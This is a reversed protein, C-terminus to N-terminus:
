RRSRQRRVVVPVLALLWWLIASPSSSGCGCSPGGVVNVTFRCTSTNGAADKAKVEVITRGVPFTSGPERSYELTPTSVADTATIEEFEVAAGEDSTAPETLTPTCAIEPPTRDRVDVAYTCTDAPYKPDMAFLTIETRGFPLLVEGPHSSVVPLAPDVDEARQPEPLTVRGGQPGTAEAIFDQPCTIPAFPLAWLERGQSNGENVFFLRKGAQAFSAHYATTSYDLPGLALRQALVTGQATGDTKWLMWGQRASFTIFHLQGRVLSHNTALGFFLSEERPFLEKVLTLPSVGDSRWLKRGGETLVYLMGNAEMLVEPADLSTFLEPAVVTGAETGDSRWIRPTGGADAAIFFLRDGVRILSGASVGFDPNEFITRVRTTGAETGDSKWLEVRPSFNGTIFFSQGNLEVLSTISSYGQSPIDKVFVTGAQTGDSKWLEPGEATVTTMLITKGLSAMASINRYSQGSELFRVPETGAETGNTKWLSQSDPVFFLTNEVRTFPTPATLPALSLYKLRVTGAQTGDSKWLATGAGDNAYFLLSDGLPMLARPDAGAQEPVVDKLLVTGVQTADSRWLEPGHVGDEAWFYLAGDKGVPSSPSSGRTGPFIDRLLATGGATGDTRWPEQGTGECGTTFYTWGGVTTLATAVTAQSDTCLSTVLVTGAETGDSKWLERRSSSQTLSFLVGGATPMLDGPLLTSVDKLSRTGAVTGDSTWLASGFPFESGITFYFARGNVVNIRTIYGRMEHIVYTGATTGDSRWLKVPGSNSAQTQFFIQGHTPLLGFLITGVESPSGLTLPVTGAETGDSRWLQSGQGQTFTLFFLTGNAQVIQSATNTVQKVQRLGAATGDTVWLGNTALLYLKGNLETAASFYPLAVSTPALSITGSQTGDSRWLVLRFTDQFYLVGGASWLPGINSITNGQQGDLVRVTGAQTGDSKWLERRGDGTVAFYLTGNVIATSTPPSGKGLLNINKVLYPETASLPQSSTAGGPVPEASADPQSSCGAGAGLLLSAALPIWRIHLNM